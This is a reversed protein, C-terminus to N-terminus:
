KEFIDGLILNDNNDNENNNNNNSFLNDNDFSKEQSISM